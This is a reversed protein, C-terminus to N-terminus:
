EMYDRVSLMGVACLGYTCITRLVPSTDVFFCPADGHYEMARSTCASTCLHLIHLYQICIHLCGSLGSLGNMVDSDSGKVELVDLM